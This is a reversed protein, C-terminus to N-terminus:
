PRSRPHEKAEQSIGFAKPHQNQRKILWASVVRWRSFQLQEWEQVQSCSLWETAINFDIRVGVDYNSGNHSLANNWRSAKPKHSCECKIM